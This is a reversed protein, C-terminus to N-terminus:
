FISQFDRYFFILMMSLININYQRLEFSIVNIQLTIMVWHISNELEFLHGYCVVNCICESSGFATQIGIPTKSSSIALAFSIIFSSHTHSNVYSWIRTWHTTFICPHHFLICFSPVNRIVWENWQNACHRNTQHHLLLIEDYTFKAHVMCHLHMSLSISANTENQMRSLWICM